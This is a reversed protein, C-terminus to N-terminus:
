RSLRLAYRSEIRVFYIMAVDYILDGGWLIIFCDIIILFLSVVVRAKDDSFDIGESVQLM